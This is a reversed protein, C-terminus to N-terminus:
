RPRDPDLKLLDGRYRRVRDALQDRGVFGIPRSIDEAATRL